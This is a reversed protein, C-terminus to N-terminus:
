DNASIDILKDDNSGHTDVEGELEDDTETDEREDTYEYHSTLSSGPTNMSNDLMNPTLDVEIPFLNVLTKMTEFCDTHYKSMAAVFGHLQKVIDQVLVFICFKFDM